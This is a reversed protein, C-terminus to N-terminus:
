YNMERALAKKERKVREVLEDRQKTLLMLLSYRREVDTGTFLSKLKELDDANNSLLISADGELLAFRHKCYQGNQGARCTCTIRLNDGNRTAIVQYSPQSGGKVTFTLM